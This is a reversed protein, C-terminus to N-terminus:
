MPFVTLKLGIEKLYRQCDLYPDGNSGTKSNCKGPGIGTINEATWGFDLASSSLLTSQSGAADVESTQGLSNILVQMKLLFEWGKACPSKQVCYLKIM